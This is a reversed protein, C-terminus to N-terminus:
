GQRRDNGDYPQMLYKRIDKIDTHMEELKSCVLDHTKDHEEKYTSFEQRPLKTVQVFALWGVFPSGALWKLWSDPM